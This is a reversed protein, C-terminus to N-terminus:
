SKKVVVVINWKNIGLDINYLNTSHLILAKPLKKFPTEVGNLLWM